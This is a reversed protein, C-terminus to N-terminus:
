LVQIEFFPTAPILPFFCPKQEWHKSESFFSHTPFLLLFLLLVLYRQRVTGYKHMCPQPSGGRGWPNRSFIFGPNPLLPSSLLPNRGKWQRVERVVVADGGAGGVAPLSPSARMQLKDWRQKNCRKLVHNQKSHKRIAIITRTAWERKENENTEEELQKWWADCRRLRRIRQLDRGRGGRFVKLLLPFDWM